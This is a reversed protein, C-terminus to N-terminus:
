PAPEGAGIRAMDGRHVLKVRPRRVLQGEAREHRDIARWHALGSSRAIAQRLRDSAPGRQNLKGALHDELLATVIERACSRNSGMSGSPGRRIWGTVFLGPLAGNTAPDTVRGGVNPVAGRREDFPLGSIAAGAYGVSRLVFGTDLIDQQGSATAVIRGDPGCELRNHVLRIASVRDEGCIEAPSRQFLLRLTRGGKPAKGALKQLIDLKTAGAWNRATAGDSLPEVQLSFDRSAALGLLEPTTFAAEAPGRRGVVVVEQVRSSALVDLAHDAIDTRRLADIDSALVRAVDLAVNGNGIVVVRETDFDFSRHAFDPHGNYWSAFETASYSGALDEGPIGLRRDSLAGTAFIVADYASTLDSVSIDRGVETELVLRLRPDDPLREFIDTIQKTKPHDPAVGFRTLGWPVPLREFMDIAIDVGADLLYEAAFAGAPGSGVIAVLLKERRGPDRPMQRDARRPIYRPAEASQFFRANLERFAEDKETLSYDAVIAGVPCIDLCAGCDICVGPDIFLMEAAAFGSESPGPHICNVPCVNVCSADNCCSQTIVHTM